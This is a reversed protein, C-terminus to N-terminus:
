SLAQQVPTAALMAVCAIMISILFGESNFTGRYLLGLSIVCLTVLLLRLTGFHGTVRRFKPPWYAISAVAIGSISAGIMPLTLTIHLSGLSIDTLSPRNLSPPLGRTSLYVVFLNLLLSVFLLRTWGYLNTIFPSHSAKPLPTIPALIRHLPVLVLMMIFATAGQAYLIERYPYLDLSLNVLDQPTVNFLVLDLGLLTVIGAMIYTFRRTGKTEKIEETERTDETEKEETEKTNETARPSSSRSQSYFALMCAAGCISAGIFTPTPPLPERFVADMLAEVTVFRLQSIRYAFVGVFSAIVLFYVALLIARTVQSFYLTRERWTIPRYIHGSEADDGVYVITSPKISLARTKIVTRLSAPRSVDVPESQGEGCRPCNECQRWCVTHYITGCHNCKVFTRLEEQQDQPDLTKFCYYCGLRRAGM